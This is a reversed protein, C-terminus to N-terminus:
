FGAVRLSFSVRTFTEELSGADRSGRELAISFGALTDNGRPVLDLGLGATFASETAEADGLTFPLTSRRYGLRIPSRRGVFTAGTFEVGGGVSLAEQGRAENLTEGTATWDAYTLGASATLGPTLAGSAGLRIEMPFEFSAGAGETDDSPDAEVEGSWSVNGALRVAGAVDVTAGVTGTVGSYNWFGGTESETVESGVAVSDFTRTLNRTLEGTYRGLSAGVALSPAIRRAFGLRVAAIGGDSVFRDTVRASGDGLPLLHQRLVQWRQDLVGGYTLTAMGWSKVPYAVGLAPFRAGSADSGQGGESVDVWSNALTVTVAPITLDAAAAPDSPQVAAGFLGVPVGGLARARADLPDVPVGLGGASLLSQGGAAAPALALACALAPALSIAAAAARGRLLRGLVYPHPRTM